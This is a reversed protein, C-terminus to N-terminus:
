HDRPSEVAPTATTASWTAHRASRAFAGSDGGDGSWRTLFPTTLGNLAPTGGAQQWVNYLAICSHRRDLQRHGGTISVVGVGSTSPRAALRPRRLKLAGRDVGSSPSIAEAAPRAKEVSASDDPLIKRHDCDCAPM